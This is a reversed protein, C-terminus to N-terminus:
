VVKEGKMAGAAWFIFRLFLLIFYVILVKLVFLLSFFQSYLESVRVQFSNVFQSGKLAPKINATKIFEKIREQVVKQSPNYANKLLVKYSSSNSLKPQINITYKRGDAFTLKYKPLAVPMNQFIMVFIYLVVALGLIILGEKAILGNIKNKDM